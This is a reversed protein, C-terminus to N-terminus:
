PLFPGAVIRLIDAAWAPAYRLDRLIAQKQVGSLRRSLKSIEEAEIRGRGMQRFHGILDGTLTGERTLTRASVHKLRVEKRGLRLRRSRGDTLFTLTTASADPAGAAPKVEIGDRRALAEVIAGPPSGIEGWIRHQQPLDYFGRSVKRLVGARCNRSLAQDVAARSGLDLFDSPTFVKGHGEAKFRDVIAGDISGSHKGM